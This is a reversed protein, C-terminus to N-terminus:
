GKLKHINTENPKEINNILVGKGLIQDKYNYLSVRSVGIDNAIEQASTERTLLALVGAEKENSM